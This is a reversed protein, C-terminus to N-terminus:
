IDVTGEKPAYDFIHHVIKAHLNEVIGARFNDINNLAEADGLLERWRVDEKHFALLKTLASHAFIGTGIDDRNVYSMFFHTEHHEEVERLGWTHFVQQALPSLGDVREDEGNTFFVDTIKIKWEETVQEKGTIAEVLEEKDFRLHFGAGKWLSYSFDGLLSGMHSRTVADTFQLNLNKKALKFEDISVLTWLGLKKWAVLVPLGLMEGYAKLRAVYDPRFSMVNKRSSKVEILVTKETGDPLTFNALLDPVQFRDSSNAPHQKQDLKHVLTCRGLWGCIISFEDELPLGIDLRKVRDALSDADAQWGIQELSEHILRSLEDKEM